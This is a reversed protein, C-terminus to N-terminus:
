ISYWNNGDWIIKIKENMANLVISTENDILGSVAQITVAGTDCKKVLIM